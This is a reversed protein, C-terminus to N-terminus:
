SMMLITPNSPSSRSNRPTGAFVKGRGRGRGSHQDAISRGTTMDAFLMGILFTNFMNVVDNM